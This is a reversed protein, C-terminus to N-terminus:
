NRTKETGIDVEVFGHKGDEKVVRSFHAPLEASPRASRSDGIYVDPHGDSVYPSPSGPSSEHDVLGITRVGQEADTCKEAARAKRWKFISKVFFFLACVMIVGPSVIAMGVILPKIAAM